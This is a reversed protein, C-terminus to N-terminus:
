SGGGGFSFFVPLVRLHLLCGVVNALSKGERKEDEEPSFLVFVLICFVCKVHFSDEPVYVRYILYYRMM